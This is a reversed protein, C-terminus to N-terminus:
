RRYTEKMLFTCGLALVSAALLIALVVRYGAIGYAETSALRYGDLVRGLLPMFVAGGLFPFLNVTGVSTGAIEVPFLEKTSTFGMIVIASSCVSFLFFWVFLVSHSLGEPFVNVFGLLGVLVATALIFTRKRSRLVRQSLVGLFPSGVIMGWAIMSLVAGAQTKSMGYVHMLYPGGWLGGFGFFVGCDFFFWVAIPWFHKESVVKRAGVWLGIKQTATTDKETRGELEAISPWGKEVPRDRVILWVSAVIVVTCGAILDFSVRWGLRAALLGLLWTGALVGLGGAANLLGAMVAFENARFWQSLIKMTPIFVLSVGLGVMVRGVFAVTLDPALGFLLSGGAALM